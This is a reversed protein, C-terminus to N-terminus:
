FIYGKSLIENMEHAEREWPESLIDTVIKVDFDCLEAALQFFELVKAREVKHTPQNPVDLIQIM